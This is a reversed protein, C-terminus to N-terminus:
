REIPPSASIEGEHSALFRRYYAFLLCTMPLAILLGFMGLLKGWISLSLLIMAPSLGTVSGMIKPVLLTDQIIQVVAFVLGTLGLIVWLSSGTELSHVLALFFAPILGVIQLYPVMNLLGIFLGLL